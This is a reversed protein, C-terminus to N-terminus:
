RQKADDLSLAAVPCAAVAERISADDDHPPALLVVRGDQTTFTRPALAVCNESGICREGNIGIRM